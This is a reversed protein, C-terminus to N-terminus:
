PFHSARAPLRFYSATAGLWAIWAAAPLHPNFTTAYRAYSATAVAFAFALAETLFLWGIPKGPPSPWWGAWSQSLSCCRRSSLPTVCREPLWAFGAGASLAAVTFILLGAALRSAPVRTM